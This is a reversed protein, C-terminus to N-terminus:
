KKILVVPSQEAERMKAYFTRVMEYKEPSVLTRKMTLTRKFTLKDGSHEYITTYKGFETELTVPDPMEDVGFGPPLKFVSTERMMASEIEVPSSRKPETLAVSHRRSVFVPKFVLLRGQMLQGYLPARFDVSLDFRADQPIDKFNLDVLQSGTAGMTLWGEIMKRFQAASSERTDRRAYSSAQGMMKEKINGSMAGDVEIKADITREILDTEPPTLPMRFIGGNEGAAILGLSGQLYDPLDGVPTFQDTADFILLRGLKPHSAVTPAQTADGVKVAIICHNFQKPSPWQERVFTPDGSFIFIPYADIKLVKLMARMLNAKDKCDGYGRGLVTTSTRPRYGNGAGVGIDISIYQLNQVYTGIARIRELETTSDATLERAKAAVADDIIVAPDHLTAGWRSVDVWDTFTQTGSQASSGSGFNVVIRPSLNMVSPSMPEWPISKLDRLEWTYSNGTVQPKIEPSNFTLSSATWGSPLNLTYRSRLVPLRTQFEWRDQFFLPTEETTASFAFVSGVDVDDRGNIVKIRGENYIDDNDDIVDVVDKKEYQKTTGDPRILWANIERVKSASSLYHARAVALSRGDRTLIRVAFNETTVLKNDSGLTVIQEDYLVVGVVEKDYTPVTSQRAQLLWSPIEDVVAGHGGSVATLSVIVTVFFGFALRTLLNRMEGGIM